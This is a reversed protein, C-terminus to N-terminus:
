NEYPLEEFNASFALLGVTELLEADNTDSRQPSTFGLVFGLILPLAAALAPRWLAQGFWDAFATWLDSSVGARASIRRALHAAAPRDPLARLLADVALAQDMAQAAPASRKLLARAAAADATPWAALDPGYRDLNEIFTDLTM